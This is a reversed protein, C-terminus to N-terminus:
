FIPKENQSICSENAKFSFGSDIITRNINEMDTQNTQPSCYIEEILINLDLKIKIGERFPQQKWFEDLKEGNFIQIQHFLRLEKEKTFGNKKHIFPAVLDFSDHNELWDESKYDLYYAFSCLIDHPTNEFSSILKEISTKIVVGKQQNKVYSNWMLNCENNNVHWCDILTNKCLVNKHFKSVMENQNVMREINSNGLYLESSMIDKFRKEKVNKPISGEFPDDPFKDARCFFTEAGKLLSEFKWFDLYKWLVLNSTLKVHKDIIEIPM